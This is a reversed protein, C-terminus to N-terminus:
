ADAYIIFAEVTAWTEGRERERPGGAEPNKNEKGSVSTNRRRRRTKVYGASHFRRRAGNRSFEDARTRRTARSAAGFSELPERPSFPPCLPELRGRPRRTVELGKALTSRHTREAIHFPTTFLWPRSVTASLVSSAGGAVKSTKSSTNRRPSPQDARTDIDIALDRRPEHRRREPTATRM